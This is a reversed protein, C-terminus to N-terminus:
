DNFGANVIFWNVLSNDQNNTSSVTLTNTNATNNRVSLTYTLVGPGGAGASFANYTLFVLAGDVGTLVNALSGSGNTLQITGAARKAYLNGTFYVTGDGYMGAWNSDGRNGGEGCALGTITDQSFGESVALAYPADYIGNGGDVNLFDAGRGAIGVYQPLPLSENFPRIISLINGNTVVPSGSNPIGTSPGVGENGNLFVPKDASNIAFAPGNPDIFGNLGSQPDFVGVMYSSLVQTGSVPSVTMIPSFGGQVPVIKKGNEYLVRGVPCDAEAGYATLVAQEVLTQPNMSYSYKFFALGFSGVATYSKRSVDPSVQNVASM